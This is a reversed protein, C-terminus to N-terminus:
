KNSESNLRQKDYAEIAATIASAIADMEAPSFGESSLSTRNLKHLESRAASKIQLSNLIM